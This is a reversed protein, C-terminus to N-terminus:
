MTPTEAVFGDGRAYIEAMEEQFIKRVPVSADKRVRKRYNEM